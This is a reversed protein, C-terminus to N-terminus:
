NSYVKAHDSDTGFPCKEECDYFNYSFGWCRIAHIGMFHVYNAPNDEYCNGAQAMKVLNKRGPTMGEFLIARCDPDKSAYMSKKTAAICKHCNGAGEILPYYGIDLQPYDLKDEPDAWDAQCSVALMILCLVVIKM